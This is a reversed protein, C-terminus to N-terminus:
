ERIKQEDWNNIKEENKGFKIKMGNNEWNWNQIDEEEGEGENERENESKGSENKGEFEMFWEGGDNEEELEEEEM